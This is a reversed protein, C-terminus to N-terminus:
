FLIYDVKCEQSLSKFDLQDLKKGYEHLLEDLRARKEPSGGETSVQNGGNRGGFYSSTYFRTLARLDANYSEILNPMEQCPVYPDPSIQSLASVSLFLLPLLFACLRHLCNRM